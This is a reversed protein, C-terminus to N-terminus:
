HSSHLYRTARKEEKQKYMLTDAQAILDDLTRSPDGSSAVVGVSFSIPGSGSLSNHSDLTAQFRRRIAEESDEPTTTLLAVFEDGGWRALIDFQRLCRRLLLATEILVEDGRQHGLTDNIQKMGDLDIFVLSFRNRPRGGGFQQSALTLFGRRNYLSTLEDIMSENRLAIQLRHREMAYRLSRALLNPDLQGKILYDQAGEQLAQLALAEDNVSTLVVLPVGAASVRAKRVVAIGVADPLGLDLVAVDPREDALCRLAEAFSQRHILQFNSIRSEGLAEQFLRVDGPNDEVLLIKLTDVSM